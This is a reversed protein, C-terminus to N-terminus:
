WWGGGLASNTSELLWTEGDGNHFFFKCSHPFCFYHGVACSLRLLSHIGLLYQILLFVHAFAEEQSWRHRTAHASRQPKTILVSAWGWPMGNCSLPWHRFFTLNWLWVVLRLPNKWLLSVSFEQLVTKSESKGILMSKVSMHPCSLLKVIAM